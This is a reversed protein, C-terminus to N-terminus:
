PLKHNLNRGKLSGGVGRRFLYSLFTIITVAITIPLNYRSIWYKIEHTVLPKGVLEQDMFDLIRALVLDLPLSHGANYWYVRKPEGAARYLQEGAEAPVIDDFRGLHFVVPRPSFNRIFNLPDIPDMFRQLEEYTIGERELYERIPPIAPHQSKRVMLSMNGGAVILAAAKIRPEVGIFIGGFIGGMSGGVYGIRDMDIDDRTELYDVARRLDIITQIIGRRSENLNTSYLAKGNERREGHFEADISIIAYGEGAMLEAAPIADEKSGGYGHLFVICPFRGEGKPISIVAPVREGNVSDFYVKFIRCKEGDKLLSEEVNLPLSRDYEYFRLLDGRGGGDTATLLGAGPLSASFLASLIFCCRLNLNM